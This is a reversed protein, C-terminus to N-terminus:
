VREANRADQQLREVASRGDERRLFGEFMVLLWLVAAHDRRGSEHEDMLRTLTPPHFFGCSGLMTGTVAARVKERLPGRFWNALPVSFGQKPRYLVDRPVYPELARKFIHKGSGGRLKLRPPLTACWEAFEHDLLPARVELSNAMSARDVKVLIDGPLWTMIDAYQAKLLPVDTDAAALQGALMHRASYGQLASRLRDSFLAVRLTDPIVSVSNFFADDEEMALELFTTKARLPRPAWDMKPYLGGLTGFLARRFPSPLARRVQSERHHWLYRRYGALLEDGGDGSLCVKVAESAVACVRYTPLASSDGFPEDYIDILRDILSFEDPSVQRRVHRTRYLEAVKSAYASEDVSKDGFSISFTTVPDPSSKAMLAVIGSSDVGGSLFAGLPVDSILRLKVAEGLRAILEASAEAEGIPRQEAFSLRWYRELRPAEGRELLLTHAAPLRRVDRYISKPDAIYGLAFYDEVAEPDLIRPLGPHPTLAKLESGFLFTGDALTAYYLPKKGLRDRAIFLTRKPGDWLAFAFMGRFRKVCAPGWADWGHLIVETDCHTRFARGQAELEKKLDPFNYIEGNFVVALRGDASLMPQHGRELDIISLRRHALGVGPAFYIGEGDPGRHRLTDNMRALLRRDIEREGKTDFIGALGCM